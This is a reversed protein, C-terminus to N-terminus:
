TTPHCGPETSTRDGISYCPSVFLFVLLTWVWGAFAWMFAPLFLIFSLVPVSNKNMTSHFSIPQYYYITWYYPCVSHLRLHLSEWIMVFIFLPPPPPCWLFRRRRVSQNNSLRGFERSHQAPRVVVPCHAACCLVYEACLMASCLLLRPSIEM